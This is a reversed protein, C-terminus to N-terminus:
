MALDYRERFCVRTEKKQWELFHKRILDGNSGAAFYFVCDKRFRPWFFRGWEGLAQDLSLRLTGSLDRTNVCWAHQDLNVVTEALRAMWESSSEGQNRPVILDWMEAEGHLRCRLLPTSRVLGPPM